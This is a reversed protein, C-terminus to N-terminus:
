FFVRLITHPKGTKTTEKRREECCLKLVNNIVCETVQVPQGLTVAMILYFM